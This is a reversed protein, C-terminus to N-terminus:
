IDCYWEMAWDSLVDPQAPQGNAALARRWVNGTTSLNLVYDSSANSFTVADYPPPVDVSRWEAQGFVAGPRSLVPDVDMVLKTYPRNENQAASWAPIYAVRVPFGREVSEILDDLAYGPRPTGDSEHAYRLTWAM